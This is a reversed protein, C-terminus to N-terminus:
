PLVPAGECGQLQVVGQASGDRRHLDLALRELRRTSSVWATVVSKRRTSLAPYRVAAQWARGGSSPVAEIPLEVLRDHKFGPLLVPVDGGGPPLWRDWYFAMALATRLGPALQAARLDLDARREPAAAQFDQLWPQGFSAPDWHQVFRPFKRRFDGLSKSEIRHAQLGNPTRQFVDWQQRIIRNGVLYRNNVAVSELRGGRWTSIEEVLYRIHFLVLWAGRFEAAVDVRTLGGGATVNSTVSVDGAFDTEGTFRCTEGASATGVHALVLFM